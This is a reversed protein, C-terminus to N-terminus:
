FGCQLGPKRRAGQGVCRYPVKANHIYIVSEANFDM